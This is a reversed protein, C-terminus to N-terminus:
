KEEQKRNDIWKLRRDIERLYYQKKVAGMFSGAKSGAVDNRLAELEELSMDKLTKLDINM